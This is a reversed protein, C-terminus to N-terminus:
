GTTRRIIVTGAVVIVAVGFAVLLVTGAGVGSRVYVPREGYAYGHHYMSRNLMRETAMSSFAYAVWLGGAGMYGYGGHGQNYSINYTTGGRSYTQPIHEPRTAPKSAYKGPYKKGIEAQVKPDSRFKKAADARTKGFKGSQKAKDYLKQDAKTETKSRAKNSSGWGKKAAAPKNAKAKNSSSAKPRAAPKQARAKPRQVPRRQTTRSRSTSRSSSRRQAFASDPVAFIAFTFLILAWVCKRNIKM